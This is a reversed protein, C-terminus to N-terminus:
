DFAEAKVGVIHGRPGEAAKSNGLGAKCYFFGDIYKCLLSAKIGEAESVEVGEVGAVYHWVTLDGAGIGADCLTQFCYLVIVVLILSCSKGTCQFVTTNANANGVCPAAYDRYSVPNM